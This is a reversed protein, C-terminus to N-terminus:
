RLKKINYTPKCFTIRRLLPKSKKRTTRQSDLKRSKSLANEKYKISCYVTANVMLEYTPKSFMTIRRFLPKSVKRTNTKSRFICIKAFEYEKM